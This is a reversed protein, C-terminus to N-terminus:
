TYICIARTIVGIAVNYTKYSTNWTALDKTSRHIKGVGANTKTIYYIYQVGLIIATGIGIIQNWETTGTAFTQKL